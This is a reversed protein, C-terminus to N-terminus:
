LEFLAYFTEFQLLKNILYVETTKIIVENRNVLDDFSTVGQQYYKELEDTADLLDSIKKVSNKIGLMKVRDSYTMFNKYFKALEDTHEFLEILVEQEEKTPFIQQQLVNSLIDFCPIIIQYLTNSIKNKYLEITQKAKEVPPRELYINDITTVINSIFFDKGEFSTNQFISLGDNAPFLLYLFGYYNSFEKNEKKEPEAFVSEKRSPINPFYLKRYNEILNNTTKETNLPKRDKKPQKIVFLNAIKKSGRYLVFKDKKLYNLYIHCNNKILEIINFFGDIDQATREPEFLVSDPFKNKLKDLKNM